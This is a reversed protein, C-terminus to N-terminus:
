TILVNFQEAIEKLAEPYTRGLKMLFTISDGGVGCGFCKFMNKSPTVTFSSGGHFPCIGKLSIGAKKLVVHRAIVEDIRAADKIEQVKFKDIM